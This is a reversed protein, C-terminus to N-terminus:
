QLIGCIALSCSAVRHVCMLFYGSGPVATWPQRRSIGYVDVGVFSLIVLWSIITVSVEVTRRWRSQLRIEEERLEASRFDDHKRQAELSSLNDHLSAVRSATADLDAQLDRM